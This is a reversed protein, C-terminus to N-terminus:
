RDDEMRSSLIADVQRLQQATNISLVDEPPFGDVLEVVHGGAKLLQPIDTIRYEGSAKDPALQGLLSFLLGADFCAYSPYIERICREADDASAHEVITRFHGAEDRVIRGYGTPDDVTATALTAAAATQRHRRVLTEITSARILPGDGALVLVDGTFGALAAAACATAHGTGRQQAQVAYVIDDEGGFVARVADAGYGVVLVIPRAGTARVAEVVWRIMPRGGVECVVKSQAGPLRTGKGAALIVAALPRQGRPMAASDPTENV